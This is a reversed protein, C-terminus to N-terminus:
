PAATEAEERLGAQRLLDIERAVVAPDPLAHYGRFFALSADPSVTMLSQVVAKAEEARGLAQLCAAKFPESFFVTPQPATQAATVCSEYNGQVFELWAKFAYGFVPNPSNPTLESLMERAKALDGQQIKFWALGHRVTPDFPQLDIAQECHPTAAELDNNADVYLNCLLWHGLAIALPSMQPSRFADEVLAFSRAIDSKPDKSVGLYFLQDYGWAVEIKLLASDPFARLGEEWIAIAQRTSAETEQHFLRHGRLYYDYEGFKTPDRTWAVERYTNLLVGRQGIVSSVVRRAIEDQMQFPDDSQRDLADAWVQAGSRVDVLEAIIRMTGANRQVSGHIVYDAELMRGAAVPDPEARARETVTRVRVFPSRSVLMTLTETTGDVFYQLAPDGSKNQFPLVALFAPGSPTVQWPRILAVVGILVLLFAAVAVAVSRLPLSKPEGAPSAVREPSVEATAAEGGPAPDPVLMYGQRPITRVADRGTPGLVKRLESICQTLSDETVIVDPWAGSLLTDKSVVRAPSQLLLRLVRLMRHSADVRSGDPAILEHRDPDFRHGGFRLAEIDAVTPKSLPQNM